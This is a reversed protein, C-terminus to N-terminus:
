KGWGTDSSVYPEPEKEKVKEYGLVSMCHHAEASHVISLIGCTVLIDAALCVGWGKNCYYRDKEFQISDIPQGDKRTWGSSSVCGGLVLFGLVMAVLITKKM